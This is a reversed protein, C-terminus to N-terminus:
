SLPMLIYIHQCIREKRPLFFLAYLRTLRRAKDLKMSLIKGSLRQQKLLHLLEIQHFNEHGCFARVYASKNRMLTGTMGNLKQWAIRM